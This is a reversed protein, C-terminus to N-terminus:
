SKNHAESLLHIAKENSRIGDAQTEPSFDLPFKGLLENKSHYGFIKVAAQNCDIIKSAEAFFIAVDANEILIQYLKKSSFLSEIYNRDTDELEMAAEQFNYKHGFLVFLIRSL